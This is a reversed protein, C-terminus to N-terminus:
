VDKGATIIFCPDTDKVVLYWKRWVLTVKDYRGESEEDIERKTKTGKYIVNKVQKLTLQGATLKRQVKFSLRYRDRRVLQKIEELSRQGRLNDKM